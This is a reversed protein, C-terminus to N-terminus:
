ALASLDNWQQASYSWDYVYDKESMQVSGVASVIEVLDRYMASDYYEKADPSGLNVCGHSTDVKGLNAANALNEHNFETNNIRAAWEQLSNCYGFSEICMKYEPYEGQVFHIGNTTAKGPM